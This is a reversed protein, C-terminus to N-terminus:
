DPIVHKKAPEQNAMKVPETKPGGGRLWMAFEDVGMETLGALREEAGDDYAAKLAALVSEEDAFGVFCKHEDWEGTEPDVMDAIWVRQSWRDDGLFADVEDGDAGEVNRVHGYDAPMTVAWSRGS